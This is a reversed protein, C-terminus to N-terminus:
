EIDLGKIYTTSTITFIVESSNGSWVGDSITGVNAASINGSVLGLTIKQMNGESSSITMTSENTLKFYTANDDLIYCIPTNTASPESVLAFSLTFTSSSYSKTTIDAGDSVGFDSMFISTPTVPKSQSSSDDDPDTTTSGGNNGDISGEGWDIIDGTFVLESTKEKTDINWTYEYKLGSMFTIASTVDWTYTEGDITVSALTAGAAVYQPSIITSYEKNATVVAPTLATASGTGVFSDKSINCITNNLASVKLGSVVPSTVAVGGYTINLIIVLNSMQHGFQLTPKSSDTATVSATLLDSNEYGDSASQDTAITFTFDTDIGSKHPYAAVYSLTNGDEIVYPSESEFSSGDFTYSKVGDYIDGKSEFAAVSIIDNSDFSNGSVRTIESSFSISKTQVFDYLTTSDSNKCSLLSLAAFAFSLTFLNKM